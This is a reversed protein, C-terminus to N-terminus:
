NYFNELDDKTVNFIDTKYQGTWAMMLKGGNTQFLNVLNDKGTRNNEFQIGGDPAVLILTFLGSNRISHPFNSTIDRLQM